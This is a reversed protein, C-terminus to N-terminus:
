PLLERRVRVAPDGLIVYNRSDNQEIWDLVLNADDAATGTIRMRGALETTLFACRDSFDQTAEGVRDGMLVKGVLNRFPGIHDVVGPPQISYSWAREVHGVVALAGRELMKKPLASVFPANALERKTDGSGVIVDEKTPTGAGFCAFMFVFLGSLDADDALDAARIRYAADDADVAGEGPWEQAFLSGQETAQRPDDKAMVAGHSATFLLTPRVGRGHLVDVLATKTAGDRLMVNTKFGLKDSIVPFSPRGEVNKGTALPEVLHGASLATADGRNPDPAWYCIDRTTAVAAATEYAVVNRAYRDYGAPADFCIRGVAYQLDLGYQFEFPIEGPGGVLLLYYPVSEPEVSGWAANHRQLWATPTEGFRYDLQKYTAAYVQKKRLALLPGIAARVDDGCQTSLVVGWGVDAFDKPQLPFPLNAFARLGAAPSLATGTPPPPPPAPAAARVADALDSMEVPPTFWAKATCDFGNFQLKPM